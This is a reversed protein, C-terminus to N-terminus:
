LQIRNTLAGDVILNTGSIFSAAPSALFVVARAVEEPTGMRGTPNRGLATKYAEPAELERKHWIGGKFYITGPSVTNARIGKAAHLNALASVYSIVATKIANYPRAGFFYEVGATSAIAVIAAAKSKELHPLAAEVARVTGMLDLDFGIKWSEETPTGGFGSVNPVLIDIGGLAEGAAAVWARLALGDRVDVVGGIAKVGKAGVAKAAAEVETANRACFAVDAGEAALLDVIARGRTGGTVVAKRGKLGLDM